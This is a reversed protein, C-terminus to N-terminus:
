RVYEVASADPGFDLDYGPVTPTLEEPLQPTHQM